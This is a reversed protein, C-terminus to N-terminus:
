AILSKKRNISNAVIESAEVCVPNVESFGQEENLLVKALAESAAVKDLESTTMDGKKHSIDLSKKMQNTTQIYEHRKKYGHESLTDTFNNRTDISKQRETKYHNELYIWRDVVAKRLEVSYGTLLTITNSYDLLYYPRLEGKSDRYTMLDVGKLSCLDASTSSCLTPNELKNIMHRIDRLVSAHRKKTLKAIDRSDMTLKKNIITLEM